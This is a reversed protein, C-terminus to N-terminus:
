ARVLERVLREQRAFMPSELRGEGEPHDYGLLHLVGHVVLRVLEEELDIGAEGAQRQAQELGIYVDGLLRDDDGLSFSIVDTPRDRDLYRRNLARIAEDPLLTVSVEGAARGESEATHVVARHLLKTDADPADAEVNVIVDLSSAPTV